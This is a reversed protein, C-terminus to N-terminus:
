GEDFMLCGRIMTTGREGEMKTYTRYWEALLDRDTVLFTAPSPVHPHEMFFRGVVDNRNGLGATEVSNSALLMRANEIGGTALVCAKPKVTFRAGSLTGVKLH